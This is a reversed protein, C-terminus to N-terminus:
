RSLETELSDLQTSACSWLLPVGGVAITIGARTAADLSGSTASDAERDKVMEIVPGCRNVYEDQILQGYAMADSAVKANWAKAAAVYFGITTQVHHLVAPATEDEFEGVWQAVAANADSVRPSYERYSIGAETLANLGRLAGVVKRLEGGSDRTVGVSFGKDFVVAAVDGVPLIIDQSAVRIVVTSDTGGRYSGDVKEGSRLAVTAAWAGGNLVLAGTAALLWSRMVNNVSGGDEPHVPYPQPSEGRAGGQFPVHCNGTMGSSCEM